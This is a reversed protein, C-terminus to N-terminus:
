TKLQNKAIKVVDITDRPGCVPTQRAAHPGRVSRQGPKNYVCYKRLFSLIMLIKDSYNADISGKVWYPVYIFIIFLIKNTGETLTQKLLRWNQIKSLSNSFNLFTIFKFHNAVKQYKKNRSDVM